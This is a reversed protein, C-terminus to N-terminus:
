INLEESYDPDFRPKRQSLQQIPGPEGASGCAAIYERLIVAWSNTCEDTSKHSVLL